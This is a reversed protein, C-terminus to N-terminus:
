LTNSPDNTNKSRARSHCISRAFSGNQPPACKRAPAGLRGGGSDGSCSFARSARMDAPSAAARSSSIVWLRRSTTYRALFYSLLPTGLSSIIEMPVMPSILATFVKVGSRLM